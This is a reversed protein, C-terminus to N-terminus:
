TPTSKRNGQVARYGIDKRYQMGDFRIEAAAEYARRQATKVNHGLATVTLVRGGSVTVQSDELTTGAHFVHCDGADAGLGHIVDGKRPADPYGAAALVVGLAVRPDWEAEIENLRGALACELLGVLDSKLRMMIPQTEPDGMRCNFELVKITGDPSIM